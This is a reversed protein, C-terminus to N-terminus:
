ATLLRNIEDPLRVPRMEANVSVIDIMAEALLREGASVTQKLTM